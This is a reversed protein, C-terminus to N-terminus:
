KSKTDKFNKIRYNELVSLAKCIEEDSKGQKRKKRIYRGWIRKIEVDNLNIM